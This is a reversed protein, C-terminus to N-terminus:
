TSWNLQNLLIIVFLILGINIAKIQKNIKNIITSM